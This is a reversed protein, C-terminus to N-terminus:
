ARSVTSWTYYVGTFSSERNCLVSDKPFTVTWFGGGERERRREVEKMRAKSIPWAM